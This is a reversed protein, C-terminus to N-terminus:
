TPVDGDGDLRKMLFYRAAGPPFDPITGFVTYGLKEYFPRAQFSFTDLHIGICGRAVAEREAQGLLATGLGGRRLDAPLFLLRVFFWRYLVHGFLGGCAAAEGPRRVVLNVPRFDSPGAAPLNFAEIAHFLPELAPDAEVETLTIEVAPPM